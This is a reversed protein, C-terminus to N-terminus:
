RPKFLWNLLMVFATILMFVFVYGMWPLWKVMIAVIALVAITSIVLAMGTFYGRAFIKLM